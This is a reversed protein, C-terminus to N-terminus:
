SALLNDVVVAQDFSQSSVSTWFAGVAAPQGDLVLVFPRGSTPVELRGLRSAAQETLKLNHSGQDSWIVDEITLLPPERLALLHPASVAAVAPSIQGEVLYIAFSQSAMDAPAPRAALLRPVTLILAALLLVIVGFSFIALPKRNVTPM